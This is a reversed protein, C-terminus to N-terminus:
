LSLLPFVTVTFTAKGAPDAETVKVQGRDAASVSPLRNM